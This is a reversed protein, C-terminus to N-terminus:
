FNTQLLIFFMRFDNYEKERQALDDDINIINEVEICLPFDRFLQKNENSFMSVDSIITSEEDYTDYTCITPLSYILSKSEADEDLIDEIIHFSFPSDVKDSCLKKDPTQSKRQSKLHPTVIVPFYTREKNGKTEKFLVKACFQRSREEFMHILSLVMSTNYDNSLSKFNEINRRSSFSSMKINEINKSSSSFSSISKSEFM